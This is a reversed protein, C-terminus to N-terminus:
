REEEDGLVTLLREARQQQREVEDMMQEGRMQYLVCLERLPDGGAEAMREEFTRKDTSM